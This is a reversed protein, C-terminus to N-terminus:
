HGLGLARVRKYASSTASFNGKVAGYVARMTPEKGEQLNRAALLTKELETLEVQGLRLAALRQAREDDSLYPSMVKLTEVGRVM